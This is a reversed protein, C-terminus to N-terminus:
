NSSSELKKLLQTEFGAVTWPHFSETVSAKNMHPPISIQIGGIGNFNERKVVFDHIQYLFMCHYRAQLSVFARNSRIEGFAGLCGEYGGTYQLTEIIAHLRELVWAPLLIVDQVKEDSLASAGPSTRGGDTTKEVHDPLTLPLTHEVILFKFETVLKEQM